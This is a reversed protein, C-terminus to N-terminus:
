RPYGGLFAYGIDRRRLGMGQSAARRVRARLRNTLTGAKAAVGGDSAPASPVPSRVHDGRTQAKVSSSILASSSVVSVSCPVIMRLLWTRQQSALSDWGFFGPSCAMM